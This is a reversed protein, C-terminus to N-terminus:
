GPCRITVLTNLSRWRMARQHPMSAMSRGRRRASAASFGTGDRITLSPALWACTVVLPM